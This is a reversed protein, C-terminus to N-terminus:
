RNVVKRAVAKRSYYMEYERISRKFIGVISNRRLTASVDLTMVSGAKASSPASVEVDEFGINELETELSMCGSESLGSCYEMKM